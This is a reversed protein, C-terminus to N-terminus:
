RRRRVILLFLLPGIHRQSATLSGGRHIRKSESASFHWANATAANRPFSLAAMLTETRDTRKLSREVFSIIFRYPICGNDVEGCGMLM